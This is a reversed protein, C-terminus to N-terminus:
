SLLWVLSPCTRFTQKRFLIPVIIVRFRHKSYMKVSSDYIIYISIHVTYIQFLVSTAVKCLVKRSKSGLYALSITLKNLINKKIMPLYLFISSVELVRVRGGCLELPKNNPERRFEIALYKGDKRKGM